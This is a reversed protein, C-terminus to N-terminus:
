WKLSFLLLLLISHMIHKYLATSLLDFNVSDNIICFESVKRDSYVEQPSM